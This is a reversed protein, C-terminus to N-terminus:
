GRAKGQRKILEVAAQKKAKAKRKNRSTEKKAARAAKQVWDLEKTPDILGGSALKVFEAAGLPYYRPPTQQVLEEFDKRKKELMVARYTYFVIAIGCNFLGLNVVLGYAAFFASGAAPHAGIVRMADMDGVTNQLLSSVAMVFTRYDDVTEGFAVHSFVAFGVFVFSFYLLFWCLVPMSNAMTLWLAHPGPFLGYYRFMQFFSLAVAIAELSNVMAIIEVFASLAVYTKQTRLRDGRLAAHLPSGLVGVKGFTAVVWCLAMLFKTLHFVNERFYFGCGAANAEWVSRALTGLALAAAVAGVVEGALAYPDAKDIFELSYVSMKDKVFVGGALSFELMVQATVFYNYNVNYLNVTVIIARTAADIYNNARLRYVARAYEDGPTGPPFDLVHGQPNYLAFRGFTWLDAEVDSGNVGQQFVFGPSGDGFTATSQRAFFYPAHCGDTFTILDAGDTQRRREKEWVALQPTLECGDNLVSRMQRVRVAGVQRFAHRLLGGPGPPQVFAALPGELWEYVDAATRIGRVDKEQHLGFRRLFLGSAVARGMFYMSHVNRRLLMSTVLLAVFLVTKWLGQITRVVVLPPPLAPGGRGQGRGRGGGGGGGAADPQRGTFVPRPNQFTAMQGVPLKVKACFDLRLSEGAAFLGAFEGLVEVGTPWKTNGQGVLEYKDAPVNYFTCADRHLAEFTYGQVAHFRLEPQTRDGTVVRVVAAAHYQPLSGGAEEHVHEEPMHNYRGGLMELFTEEAVARDRGKLRATHDRATLTEALKRHREEVRLFAAPPPSSSSGAGVPGPARDRGGDEEEFVSAFPDYVPPLAMQTERDAHRRALRRSKLTIDAELSERTQQAMRIQEQLKAVEEEFAEKESDEMDSDANSESGSVSSVGDDDLTGARPGKENM